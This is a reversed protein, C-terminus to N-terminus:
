KDKRGNTMDDDKWCKRLYGELMQIIKGSKRGAMFLHIYEKV